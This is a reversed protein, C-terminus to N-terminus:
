RSLLYIILVAALLMIWLKNRGSLLGGSQKQAGPRQWKSDMRSRLRIKYDEEKDDELLGLERKREEMEEKIPDYHRPKFEFQKPKPTKFFGSIM